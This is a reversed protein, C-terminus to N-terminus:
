FAIGNLDIEVRLDIYGSQCNLLVGFEFAVIMEDGEFFCVLGLV